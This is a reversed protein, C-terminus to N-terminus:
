AGERLEPVASLDADVSPGEEAAVVHALLVGEGAPERALHEVGDKGAGLKCCSRNGLEAVRELAPRQSGSPVIKAPGSEYEGFTALRGSSPRSPAICRSRTRRACPPSWPAKVASTAPESCPQYRIARRIRRCSSRASSATWSASTLAQTAIRPSRSGSRKSAQIWRRRM